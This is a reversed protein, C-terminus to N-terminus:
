ISGIKHKGHCDTCVAAPGAPRSTPTAAKRELWRAILKEPNVPHKRHCKRCYDNVQDRKIVNDPPTAGIDEDNAHAASTGHCGTCTIKRKLHTVTLPEKVFTMHCVYCGANAGHPNHQQGASGLGPWTGSACALGLLLCIATAGIMLARM